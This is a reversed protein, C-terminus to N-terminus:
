PTPEEAASPDPDPPILGAAALGSRIAAAIPAPDTIPRLM